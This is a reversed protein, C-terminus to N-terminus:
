MKDVTKNIDAGLLPFRITFITGGSLKNQCRIDGRQDLILKQTLALGLGTGKAKTTFFTQFLKNKLEAPIGPGNDEIELVASNLDRRITVGLVGGQPSLAETANKLLNVIAQKVQDIDVFVPLIEDEIKEVVSVKKNVFEEKLFFLVEEVINSLPVEVPHRQGPRVFQLYHEAVKNLRAIEKEIAELMQRNAPTIKKDLDEQLMSINLGLANLPNRIEHTVQAALQGVVALKENQLLRERLKTAETVDDMISIVGIIQNNADTLPMHRVEFINEMVGDDFQEHIFWPAQPKEGALVTILRDIFNHRMAFPIKNIAEGVLQSEPLRLMSLFARNVSRVVGQRDSVMLGARISQIINLNYHSLNELERNRLAVSEAMTNFETALQGIEDKSHIEVRHSYDGQSILKAGVTLQQVPQLLYLVLIALGLVLLSGLTCFIVTFWAGRRELAGIMTIEKQITMNLRSSLTRISTRLRDRAEMFMSAVKSDKVLTQKEFPPTKKLGTIYNEIAEQYKLHEVKIQHLSVLLGALQPDLFSRNPIISNGEIPRLLQKNLIDDIQLLNKKILEPYSFRLTDLFLKNQSNDRIKSIDFDDSLHYLHSISNILGSIPIYGKEVVQLRQDIDRMKQFSSYILAAFLM